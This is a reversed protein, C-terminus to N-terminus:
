RPSRFSRCCRRTPEQAGVADAWRGPIRSPGPPAAACARGRLYEVPVRRPLVQELRRPRLSRAQEDDGDVVVLPCQGQDLSDLLVKGVQRDERPGRAPWFGVFQQVVPDLVHVALGQVGGKSGPDVRKAQEPTTGVLGLAGGARESAVVLFGHVIQPPMRWSRFAYERPRVRFCETGRPAEASPSRPAPPPARRLIPCQSGASPTRRRPPAPSSTLCALRDRVRLLVGPGSRRSRARHDVNRVTPDRARDGSRKRVSRDFLQQQAPLPPLGRRYGAAAGLGVYAPCRGQHVWHDASGGNLSNHNVSTMSSSRWTAGGVFRGLHAEAEIRGDLGTTYDFPRLNWSSPLDGAPQLASDLTGFLIAGGQIRTVVSSAAGLKWLSEVRLGINQDGFQYASNDDYEHSQVIAWVHESSGGRKLDRTLLNGRVSLAGFINQDGAYMTM